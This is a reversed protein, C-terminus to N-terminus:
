SGKYCAGMSHHAEAIVYKSNLKRHQYRSFGKSNLLLGFHVQSFPLFSTLPLAQQKILELTTLFYPITANGM